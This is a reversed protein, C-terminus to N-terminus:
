DAPDAERRADIAELIMHTTLVVARVLNDEVTLGGGPYLSVTGAGTTSCVTCLWGGEGFPAFELADTEYHCFHCSAPKEGKILCSDAACDRSRLCASNGCDHKIM